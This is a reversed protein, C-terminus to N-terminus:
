DVPTASILPFGGLMQQLHMVQRLIFEAIMLGVVDVATDIGAVIRRVEGSTLGGPEPGLGLM